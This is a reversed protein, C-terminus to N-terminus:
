GALPRNAEEVQRPKVPTSLLHEDLLSFLEDTTACRGRLVGRSLLIAPVTESQSTTYVEVAAAIKQDIRHDSELLKAPVINLLSAAKQRAVGIPQRQPNLSMFQDWAAYLSPDCLWVAWCLRAYACAQVREAEKCKVAPNCSSHMPVPIAIVALRDGFRELVELLMGHQRHCEDCTHDFLWAIVHKAKPSGLVPWKAMNLVVRRANLSVRRASPSGQPMQVVAVLPLTAPSIAVEEVSPIALSCEVPTTVAYTRPSILSQAAVFLLPVAVGVAVEPSWLNSRLHPANAFILLSALLATVHIACCYVCFRRLVFLQIASFWLGAFATVVALAVMLRWAVILFESSASISISIAVLIMLAYLAAGVAAVPIPGFRAWRSRTVADCGSGGGCGPLTSGKTQVIMRGSIMLSITLFSVIWVVNTVDGFSASALPAEGIHPAVLDGLLGISLM